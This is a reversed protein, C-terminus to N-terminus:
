KKRLGRGRKEEYMKNKGEIQQEGRRGIRNREKKNLGRGRKEEYM